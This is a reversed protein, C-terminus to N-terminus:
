ENYGKTKIEYGTTTKTISTVVGSGEVVDLFSGVSIFPGGTPDVSEYENEIPTILSRYKSGLIYTKNDNDWAFVKLKFQDINLSSQPFDERFTVFAKTYDFRNSIRVLEFPGEWLITSSDLRTFTYVDGDRNIYNKIMVIKKLDLGL